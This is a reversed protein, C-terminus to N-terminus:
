PATPRWFRSLAGKACENLAWDQRTWKAHGDAFVAHFGGQHRGTVTGTRHGNDGPWRTDATQPCSAGNRGTDDGAYYNAAPGNARQDIDKTEMCFATEAPAQMVAMTVPYSGAPIIATNTAQAEASSMYGFGDENIGYSTGWDYWSANKPDGYPLRVSHSPCTWVAQSKVYAMLVNPDNWRTAGPSNRKVWKCPFTEDYDQTYMYLATAIQKANSLCAAGRAKDRAQAFVPFLIAALIAIIAIVVLLEILTFGNRKM